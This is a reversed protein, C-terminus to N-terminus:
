IKRASNSAKPVLFAGMVTVFCNRLPVDSFEALGDFSLHEDDRFNGIEGFLKPDPSNEFRLLSIIFTKSWKM